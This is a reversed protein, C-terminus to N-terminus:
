NGLDSKDDEADEEFNNYDSIHMDIEEGVKGDLLDVDAANNFNLPRLGRDPNRPDVYGELNHELILHKFEWHAVQRQLMDIEAQVDKQGRKATVSMKTMGRRTLKEGHTMRKVVIYAGELSKLDFRKSEETVTALPMEAERLAMNIIKLAAIVKGFVWVARPHRVL